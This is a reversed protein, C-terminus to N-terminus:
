AEEEYPNEKVPCRKCEHPEGNDAGDRELRELHREMYAGYADGAEFGEEWAQRAIMPAAFRLLVAFRRREKEQQEPEKDDWRLGMALGMARAFDATEDVLYDWYQSVAKELIEETVLESM